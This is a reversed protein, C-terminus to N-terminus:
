LDLLVRMLSCYYSFKTQDVHIFSTPFTLHFFFILNAVCLIFLLTPLMTYLFYPQCCRFFLPQCYRCLRVRSPVHLYLSAYGLQTSAGRLNLPLAYRLGECSCTTFNKEKWGGGLTCTHRRTSDSTYNHLQM